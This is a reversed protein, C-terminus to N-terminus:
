GFTPARRALFADIGEAFDASAIAVAQANAESELYQELSTSYATRLLTKTLGVSLAAAQTLSQALGIAEDRLDAGDVVRSVLGITLAEAATVARNTLLIDKARNLGVIRPLTWGIGYDPAAGVRPFGAQFRADNSALVLDGLCALGFGAGAAVGNVAVILPVDSKALAAIWTHARRLRERTYATSREAWSNLDTGSCFAKGSGTLVVARVTTDALLTLISSELESKMEASLANRAEPRNLQLLGVAGHRELIIAAAM